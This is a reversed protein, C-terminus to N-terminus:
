AARQYDHHLGGLIPVAVVRGGSDLPRDGDGEGPIRQAIGQHPRSANFYNVYQKIASRLHQEDLIIIHDLCEHRVSKLFRECIPNLNPSKPPINM